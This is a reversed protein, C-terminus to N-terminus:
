NFEVVEWSIYLISATSKGFIAVTTNNILAINPLADISPVSSAGLLNLFTKSMNVPSITVNLQTTSAPYATVGRQVSKIGSPFADTLNINAM